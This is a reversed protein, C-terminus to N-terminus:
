DSQVQGSEYDVTVFYVKQDAGVDAKSLKINESEEFTLGSSKVGEKAKESGSFILISPEMQGAKQVDEKINGDLKVLLVDVSSFKDVDEKCFKEKFDIVGLSMDELQFIYSDDNIGIVAVGGIEYEGCGDLEIENIKTDGNIFIETKKTKIIIENKSKVLQM